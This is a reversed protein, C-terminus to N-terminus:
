PELHEPAAFRVKHGALLKRVPEIDARGTLDLVGEASPVARYRLGLKEISHQVAVPLEYEKRVPDPRISRCATFIEPTFLFCNMSVYLKGDRAYADPNDPKEVIRRICGSEDLDLVAFRKIREPPINSGAILAQREFAISAPAPAQALAAVTKPYYYNDSNFVMFPSQGAWDAGALVANATGVPQEQVAFGIRAGALKDSVAQYYQRLASAGPPVILCFDRLGGDLLAQLTHDLFPRGIPILGKAGTSALKATQADLKLGEVEKQMRTGLGRALIM